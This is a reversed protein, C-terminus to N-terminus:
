IFNESNYNMIEIIMRAGVTFGDVFREKETICDLKYINDEIRKVIQKEEDSLKKM